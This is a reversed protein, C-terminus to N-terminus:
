FKESFIINRKYLFCPVVTKAFLLMDSFIPVSQQINIMCNALSNHTENISAMDTMTYSNTPACMKHNLFGFVYATKTIFLM